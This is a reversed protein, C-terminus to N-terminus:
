LPMTLKFASVAESFTGVNTVSTQFTSSICEYSVDVSRQVHRANSFFIMLVGFCWQLAYKGIQKKAIDNFLECVFVWNCKM